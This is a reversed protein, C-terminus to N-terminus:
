PTQYSGMAVGFGNLICGRLKEVVEPPVRDIDLGAVFRAIDQALSTM